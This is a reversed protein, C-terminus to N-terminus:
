IQAIKPVVSHPVQPFSAFFRRKLCGVRSARRTDTLKADFANIRYAMMRLRPGFHAAAAVPTEFEEASACNELYWRQHRAVQDKNDCTAGDRAAASAYRPNRSLMQPRLVGNGSGFRGDRIFGSEPLCRRPRVRGGEGPRSRYNDGGRWIFKM